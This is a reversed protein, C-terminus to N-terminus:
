EDDSFGMIDDDELDGVVDAQHQQALPLPSQLPSSSQQARARPPQVAAVATMAAERRSAPAAGAGGPGGRGDVVPVSRPPAPRPLPLPLPPPLPPPAAAALFPAAAARAGGAPGLSSLLRARWPAWLGRWLRALLPGEVLGDVLALSNMM